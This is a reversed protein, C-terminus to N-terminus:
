GTGVHYVHVSPYLVQRNTPLTLHTYSVPLNASHKEKEDDMGGIKAEEQFTMLYVVSISIALGTLTALIAWVLCM